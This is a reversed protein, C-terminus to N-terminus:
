LFHHSKEPNICIAVIYVFWMTIKCDPTVTKLSAYNNVACLSIPLYWVVSVGASYVPILISRISTSLTSVTIETFSCGKKLTLM